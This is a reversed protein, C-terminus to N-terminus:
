KRLLFALLDRLEAENLTNILGAPMPSIESPTISEVESRKLQKTQSFDFANSALTIEGGKEEVVRGWTSSGDKGTIVSFQYQDSVVKNPELLAEALDALTFRGGVASLDPGAAGGEGGVRHCAFCLTAKFMKKGNEFDAGSLDKGIRVVEAATYNRGPGSPTPLGAFVSKPQPLNWSSIVKREGETANRLMDDKMRQLFKRYSNGGSRAEIGSYWEMIQRRQGESWPGKVVRLCFAYHINHAPPSNRLMGLVARGYGSNRSALEAWDPWKTDKRAAMLRLTRDVVKPAQLFCLVRCLEADLDDDGSPYAADLAATTNKREEEDPAGLRAFVLGYARLLGLQESKTLGGWKLKGLWGLATGRDTDKGQRALAIAADILQWTNGGKRVAKRLEDMPRREAEVRGVFRIFRDPSGMTEYIKGYPAELLEQSLEPLPSGASDRKIPATSETGTYTVRWLASATRRGGTMFYMSGDKGFEADTLPLGPGAVFEEKTGRYSSGDQALHM